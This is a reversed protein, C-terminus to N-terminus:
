TRKLRGKWVRGTADQAAVCRVDAPDIQAQDIAYDAAKGEGLETAGRLLSDALIIAGKRESKRSLYVKTITVPRRGRNAVTVLVYIKDRSYPSPGGFVKYGARATVQVRPRDRWATFANIGLAVTSVIAAYWAVVNASITVEV